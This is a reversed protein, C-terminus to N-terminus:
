CSRSVRTSSRLADATCDADCCFWLVWSSGAVSDYGGAGESDRTDGGGTSWTCWLGTSPCVTEWSGDFALLELLGVSGGWSDGTGCTDLIRLTAPESPSAKSVLHATVLITLDDLEEFCSRTENPLESIAIYKSASDLEVFFAM